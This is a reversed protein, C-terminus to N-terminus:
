LPIVLVGTMVNFGGAKNDSVSEGVLMIPPALVVLLLTLRVPGAPGAPSTTCNTLESGATAATGAVTVTAAPPVTDGNKGIAVVPTVEVVGTVIVAVCLPTLLVAISGTWGTTRVDIVNPALVTTPPTVIEPVLSLRFAGAAGPLRTTEKAVESGDM